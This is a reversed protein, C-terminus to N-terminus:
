TEEFLKFFELYQKLSPKSIIKLLFDEISVTRMFVHHVAATESVIRDSFENIIPWIKGIIQRLTFQPTIPFVVEHLWIFLYGFSQLIRFLANILETTMVMSPVRKADRTEFQFDSKDALSM